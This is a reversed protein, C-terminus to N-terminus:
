CWRVYTGIHVYQHDFSSFSFSRVLQLRGHGESVGQPTEKRGTRTRNSKSVRAPDQVHEEKPGPAGEGTPRLVNGCDLLLFHITSMEM